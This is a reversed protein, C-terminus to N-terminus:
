HAISGWSKDEEKRVTVNYGNVLREGYGSEEVRGLRQHDTNLEVEILDVMHDFLRM